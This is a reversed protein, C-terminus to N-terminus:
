AAAIFEPTVLEQALKKAIEPLRAKAASEIQKSSDDAEQAFRAVIVPVDNKKFQQLEERAEERAKERAIMRREELKAATEQEEAALAAKADKVRAEQAAEVEAIQDFPTAGHHHNGSQNSSFDTHM